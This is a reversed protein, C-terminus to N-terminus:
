ERLKRLEAGEWHSFSWKLIANGMLFDPFANTVLLWAAIWKFQTILHERMSQSKASPILMVNIMPPQGNQKWPLEEAM